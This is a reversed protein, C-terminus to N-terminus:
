GLSSDMRLIMLTDVGMECLSAARLETWRVSGRIGRGPDLWTAREMGPFRGEVQAPEEPRFVVPRVVGHKLLRSATAVVTGGGVSAGCWESADVDCGSFYDVVEPNYGASEVEARLESCGVLLIVGRIRSM